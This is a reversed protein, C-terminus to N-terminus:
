LQSAKRLFRKVAESNRKCLCRPCFKKARGKKNLRIHKFKEQCDECIIIM